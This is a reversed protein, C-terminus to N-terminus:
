GLEEFPQFPIGVKEIDPPFTLKIREVLATIQDIDLGDVVLEDYGIKRLAGGPIAEVLEQLTKEVEGFLKGAESTQWEFRVRREVKRNVACQTCPMKTPCSWKLGCFNCSWDSSNSGDIHGNWTVTHIGTQFDIENGEAVLKQIEQDIELRRARKKGLEIMEVALEPCDPSWHKGGCHHCVDVCEESSDTGVSM